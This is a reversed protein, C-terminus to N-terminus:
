TLLQADFDIDEDDEVDNELEAIAAAMEALDEKPFNIERAISLAETGSIGKPRKLSRTFELVQRQQEASLERIQELIQQEYTTAAM